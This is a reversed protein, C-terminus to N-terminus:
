YTSVTVEFKNINTDKESMLADLITMAMFCDRRNYLDLEVRWHSFEISFDYVGKKNLAREIAISAKEGLKDDRCCGLDVVMEYVQHAKGNIIKKM